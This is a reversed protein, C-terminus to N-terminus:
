LHIENCVARLSVNPKSQKNKIVTLLQGASFAALLNNSLIFTFRMETLPLVVVKIETVAAPRQKRNHNSSM